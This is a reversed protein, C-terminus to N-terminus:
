AKMKYADITEYKPKITLFGGYTVERKDKYM